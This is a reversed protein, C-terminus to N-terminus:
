VLDWSGNKLKTPLCKDCVYLIANVEGEEKNEMRMRDISYCTEGKKFKHGCINCVLQMNDKYVNHYKKMHMEEEPEEPEEELWFVWTNGSKRGKIPTEWPKNVAQAYSSRATRPDVGLLGKLEAIVCPGGGAKRLAEVLNDMYLINKLRGNGDRSRNATKTKNAKGIHRFIPLMWVNGPEEDDDEKFIWPKGYPDLHVDWGQINGLERLIDPDLSEREHEIEAWSQLNTPVLRIIAELVDGRIKDLDLVEEGCKKCMLATNGELSTNEFNNKEGCEPCTATFKRIKYM